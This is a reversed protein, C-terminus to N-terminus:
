KADIGHCGSCRAGFLRAGTRIAEADGDLPNKVARDQGSSFAAILFTLLVLGRVRMGRHM